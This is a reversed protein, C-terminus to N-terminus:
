YHNSEMVIVVQSNAQNHRAFHQANYQIHFFTKLFLIKLFLIKLSMIKCVIIYDVSYYM